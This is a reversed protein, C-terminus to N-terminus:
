DAAANAADSETPLVLVAGPHILEPRAIVDRNQDYLARWRYEGGLLRAAISCLSDGPQVVYTRARRLLFVVGL